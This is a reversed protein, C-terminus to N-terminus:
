SNFLSRTNVLSAAWGATVDIPVQPLLHGVIKTESLHHQPQQAVKPEVVEIWSVQVTRRRTVLGAGPNAELIQITCLCGLVPECPPL